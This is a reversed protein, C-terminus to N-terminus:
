KELEHLANRLNLRASKEYRNRFYAMTYISDRKLFSHLIERRKRQYLFWPVWRYEERVNKEFADYTTPNQGLISLDIDVVLASDNTGPQAEHRTAMIHQHVRERPEQPLGASSLFETVWTASRTENDSATPSYVADHFWLAIEVEASFIALDHAADLETLCARIHAPTHYHRHPESYAAVLREYTDLHPGIGFAHMLSSWRDPSM